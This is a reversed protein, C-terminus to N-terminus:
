MKGHVGAARSCDTRALEARLGSRITPLVTHSNKAIWTTEKERVKSVREASGVFKVCVHLTVDRNGFHKVKPKSCDGNANWREYFNRGMWLCSWAAAWSKQELRDRQVCKSADFVAFQQAYRSHERERQRERKQATAPPDRLNLKVFHIM